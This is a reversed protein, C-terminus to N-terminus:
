KSKEWDLQRFTMDRSLRSVNSEYIDVLAKWAITKNTNTVVDENYQTYTPNTKAELELQNVTKPKGTESDVKEIVTYAKRFADDRLHTADNLDATSTALLWRARNLLTGYESFLKRIRLDTLDTLDRPMDIFPSDIDMPLVMHNELALRDLSTSPTNSGGGNRDPQERGLHQRENSSGVDSGSPLHEEEPSSSATQRETTLQALAVIAAIHDNNKGWGADYALQAEEAYYIAENLVEGKKEPIAGTFFDGAKAENLIAYATDINMGM